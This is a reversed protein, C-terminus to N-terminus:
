ACPVAAVSLSPWSLSPSLSLARSRLAPYNPIPSSPISAFFCLIYRFVNSLDPPPPPILPTRPNRPLFLSPVFVLFLFVIRLRHRAEGRRAEDTARKDKVESRVVERGAKPTSPLLSFVRFALANANANAIRDDNSLLSHCTRRSARPM